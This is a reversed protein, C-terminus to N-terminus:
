NKRGLDFNTGLGVFWYWRESSKPVMLNYGIGGALSLGTNTDMFGNSKFLFGLGLGVELDKEDKLQDLASVHVIGRFRQSKLRSVAYYVSIGNTATFGDDSEDDAKLRETLTLVIGADSGAVPFRRNFIRVYAFRASGNGDEFRFEILASKDIYNGNCVLDDPGLTWSTEAATLRGCNKVVFETEGNVKEKMRGFLQITVTTGKEWEVSLERYARGEFLSVGAALGTSALPAEIYKEIDLAAIQNAPGSLVEERDGIKLKAQPFSLAPLLLAGLLAILPWALAVRKPSCGTRYRNSNAEARASSKGSM